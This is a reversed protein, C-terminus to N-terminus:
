KGDTNKVLTGEGMHELHYVYADKALSVIEGSLGEFKPATVFAQGCSQLLKLFATKRMDDLECLVDDILLIPRIDLSEKLFFFQAMRLALVFSRKQGQSSSHRISKGEKEFLLDQRHPGASTYGSNIDRDYNNQLITHYDENEQFYPDSLAIKVEDKNQSIRSLSECFVNQFDEIFKLRSKTLAAAYKVFSIDWSELIKYKEAKAKGNKLIANRQKLIHHFSLLNQFYEKTHFSLVTDLFRRRHAPGGEIIIIDAPSFIVGIISGILEQRGSLIKANLEIKRRSKNDRQQAQYALSLKHKAGEKEYECAIYYAPAGERIMDKDGAGRFSKGFCLLAIAELLNSKGSANPGCFFTLRPHFQIQAKSYSRFSALHITQINM